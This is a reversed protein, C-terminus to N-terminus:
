PPLIVCSFPITVPQLILCVLSLNTRLTWLKSQQHTSLYLLPDTKTHHLQTTFNSVPFWVCGLAVSMAATPQYEGGEEKEVVACSVIGKDLHEM